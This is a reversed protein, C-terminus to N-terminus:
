TDQVLVSSSGDTSDGDPRGHCEGDPEVSDGNGSTTSLSLPESVIVHDTLSISSQEVQPVLEADIVTGENVVGKSKIMARFEERIKDLRQQIGEETVAEKSGKEELMMSKDILDTIIKNAVLANIPKRVFKHLKADYLYDGNAVRDELATFTRAVVDQLKGSLTLKNSRRIEDEAEKWWPQMKWKRVTDEPVGTTAIVLSVKGLLVYATVVEMKTKESWWGPGPAKKRVEVRKFAMNNWDREHLSLMIVYYSSFLLSNRKLLYEGM